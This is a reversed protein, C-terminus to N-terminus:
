LQPKLKEILEAVRKEFWEKLEGKALNFTVEDVVRGMQLGEYFGGLYAQKTEEIQSPHLKAAFETGYCSRMYNDAMDTIVDLVLEEKKTV